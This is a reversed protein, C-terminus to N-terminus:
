HISNPTQPVPPAVPAAAGTPAAANPPPPAGPTASPPAACGPANPTKACKKVAADYAKKQLKANADMRKRYDDLEKKTRNTPLPAQQAPTTGPDTPIAASGTVAKHEGDQTPNIRADSKQDIASSSGAVGIGVDNIGGGGTAAAGPAFAGAAELPVSVPATPAVATMIPDGQKAAMGMDPKGSMVGLARSLVGDRTAHEMNYKERAYAAPDSDPIPRKLETLRSKADNVHISAPYNKVINSLADAEQNEFRDGMKRYSDALQWLAQDSGSFLPYQQTV